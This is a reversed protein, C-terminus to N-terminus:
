PLAVHVSALRPSIRLTQPRLPFRRPPRSKRVTRPRTSAFLQPDLNAIKVLVYHQEIEAIAGNVQCLGVSQRVIGGFEDCLQNRNIVIRVRILREPALEQLANLRRLPNVKQLPPSPVRCGTRRLSSIGQQTPFTWCRCFRIRFAMAPANPSPYAMVDLMSVNSSM